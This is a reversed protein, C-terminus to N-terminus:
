YINCKWLVLSLDFNSGNISYSSGLLSGYCGDSFRQAYENWTPVYDWGYDPLPSYEWAICYEKGETDTWRAFACEATHDIGFIFVGTLSEDLSLDCTAWDERVIWLGDLLEVDNKPIDNRRTVFDYLISNLRSALHYGRMAEAEPYEREIESFYYNQFIKSRFLIDQVLDFSYIQLDGLEDYSPLNIVWAESSTDVGISLIDESDGIHPGYQYSEETIPDLPELPLFGIDDLQAIDRPFEHNLIYYNQLALNLFVVPQNARQRRLFWEQHTLNGAWIAIMKPNHDGIVDELTCGEALADLRSDSHEDMGNDLTPNVACLLAIFVIYVTKINLIIVGLSRMNYSM